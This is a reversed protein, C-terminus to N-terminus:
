AEPATLHNYIVIAAVSAGVLAAVAPWAHWIEGDVYDEYISIPLTMKGPIQGLVMMTAGFEGLARAFALLAGSGIGRRALPLSVHWFVGLSSAGMVRAIDEMERSVGEFAAKAPLLLLPFAVVGAAITAGTQTFMIGIGVSKLWSGIVGRSGLLVVLFYGVVTPPLVLPLVLAGMILNKGWFRKRALWWAAPVGLILVLLTASGAVRLSVALSSAFEDM